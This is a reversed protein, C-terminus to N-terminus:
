CFVYVNLYGFVLISLMSTNFELLELSFFTVFLDVCELTCICVVLFWYVISVEMQQFGHNMEIM